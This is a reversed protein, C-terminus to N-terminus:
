RLRTGGGPQLGPIGGSSPNQSRSGSGPPFSLLVKENGKLGSRVETKDDVTRGTKIPM